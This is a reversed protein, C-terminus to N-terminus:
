LEGQPIETEETAEVVTMMKTLQLHSKCDDRHRQGWGFM